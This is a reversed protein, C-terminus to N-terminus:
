AALTHRHRQRTETPTLYGFVKHRRLRRRNHFTEIVGNGLQRHPSTSPPSTHHGPPPSHNGPEGPM